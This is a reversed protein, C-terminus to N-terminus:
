PLAKSTELGQREWSIVTNWKAAINAYFLSFKGMRPKM